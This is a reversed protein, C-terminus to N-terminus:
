IAASSSKEWKLLIDFTYKNWKKLELLVAIFFLDIVVRIFIFIPAYISYLPLIISAYVFSKFPSFQFSLLSLLFM